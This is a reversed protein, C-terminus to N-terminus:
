EVRPGVPEKSTIIVIVIVHCHTLIVFPLFVHAFLLLYVFILLATLYLNKLYQVTISVNVLYQKLILAHLIVLPCSKLTFTSKLFFPSDPSCFLFIMLVIGVEGVQGDHEAEAVLHTRRHSTALAVLLPLVAHALADHTDHLNRRVGGSLVLCVPPLRLLRPQM